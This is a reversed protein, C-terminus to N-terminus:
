VILALHYNIENFMYSRKVAIFHYYLTLCLEVRTHVDLRAAFVRAGNIECELQQPVLV